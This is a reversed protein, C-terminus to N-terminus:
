GDLASVTITDEHNQEETFKILLLDQAALVLRCIGVRKGPSIAFNGCDAKSSQRSWVCRLVTM